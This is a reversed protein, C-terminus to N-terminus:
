SSSLDTLRNAIHQAIFDVQQSPELGEPLQIRLDLREVYRSSVDTPLQQSLRDLVQGGLQQGERAGTAPLRLNMQQVKIM